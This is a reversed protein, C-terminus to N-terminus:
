PLALNGEKYRLRVSKKEKMSNIRKGVFEKEKM